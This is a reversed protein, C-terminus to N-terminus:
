PSFFAREEDTMPRLAFEVFPLSTSGDPDEIYWTSEGSVIGESWELDERAELDQYDEDLDHWEDWEGNEIRERARLFGDVRMWRITWGSIRGISSKFLEDYKEVIVRPWSLTASLARGAEILRIAGDIDGSAGYPTVALVASRCTAESESTAEQVARIAAERRRRTARERARQAEVRRERAREESEAPQAQREERKEGERADDTATRASALQRALEIAGEIDGGSQELAAKCDSLSAGSASRVAKIRTLQNL